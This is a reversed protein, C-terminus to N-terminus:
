CIYAVKFDKEISISCFYFIALAVYALCGIFQFWMTRKVYGITQVAEIISQGDRVYGTNRYAQNFFAVSIGQLILFGGLSTTLLALMTILKGESDPIMIFPIVIFFIGVAVMFLGLAIRWLMNIINEYKNMM